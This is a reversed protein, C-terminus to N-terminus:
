GAQGSIGNGAPHNAVEQSRAATLGLRCSALRRPIPGQPTDDVTEATKRSRRDTAPQAKQGIPVRRKM